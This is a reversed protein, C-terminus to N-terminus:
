EALSRLRAAESLAEAERCTPCECCTIVGVSTSPVRRGRRTDETTRVPSVRRPVAEVKGKM